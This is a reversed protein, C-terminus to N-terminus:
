LLYVQENDGWDEVGFGSATSAPLTIKDDEGSLSIVIEINDQEEVQSTVDREYSLQEGSNLVIEINLTYSQSDIATPKGFTVVSGSVVGDTDSSYNRQDLTLLYLLQGESSEFRGGGAMLAGVALGRVVVEIYAANDLNEVSLAVTCLTTLPTPQAVLEVQTVIEPSPDCCSCWLMDPSVELETTHWAAIRGITEALIEGQELDYYLGGQYTQIAQVYFQDFLAQDGFQVGQIDGVFDSFVLITYLGEPLDIYGYDIDGSVKVYPEAGGEAYAYISINNIEDREMNAEEWDVSVGVRASSTTTEIQYLTQRKCGSLLTLILAVAIIYKEFKKM